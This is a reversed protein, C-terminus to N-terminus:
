PSEVDKVVDVLTTTTTAGLLRAAVLGKADIVLTSPIAMAPLSNAFGLLQRGSPDYVSPYTVKFSREFAIAPGPDNDRTNIGVFVVKGASETSLRTYATQLEPAEKRCPSCWSGWVNLVVVSGLHDALTFTSGTLTKGSLAPAPKRDGADIVQVTGDGAVFGAANSAGGTGAPAKDDATGSSCGSVVTAVAVLCTLMSIITRARFGAARYAHRLEPV